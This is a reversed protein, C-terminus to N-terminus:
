FGGGNVAIRQNTIYRGDDSVLFRVANAIDEPQCLTGFPQRSELERISEVGQTFRVLAEGM